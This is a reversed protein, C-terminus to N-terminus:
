GVGIAPDSATGEMEVPGLADLTLRRGSLMDLSISVLRSGQAAIWRAVPADRVAEAVAPDGDPVERAVGTVLVSWGTGDEAIDDVEFAVVANCTAASLKTGRVTRVYIQGGVLRYNVPLVLPLADASLGIRGLTRSALLRLCETRDLVALGNRDTEM